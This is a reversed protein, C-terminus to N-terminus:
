HNFKDSLEIKEFHKKIDVIERPKFINVKEMESVLENIPHNLECLEMVKEINEKSVGKMKGKVFAKRQDVIKKRSM